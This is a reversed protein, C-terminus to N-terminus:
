KSMVKGALEAAAGFNNHMGFLWGLGYGLYYGVKSGGNVNTLESPTMENVGIVNLNKM